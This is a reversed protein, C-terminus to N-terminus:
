IVLDNNSDDVFRHCTVCMLSLEIIPVVSAHDWSTAKFWHFVNGVTGGGACHVALLGWELEKVIVM